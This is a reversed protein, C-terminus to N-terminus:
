QTLTITSRGNARVMVGPVGGSSSKELKDEDTSSTIGWERMNQKFFTITWEVIM